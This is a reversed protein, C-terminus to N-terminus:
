KATPVKGPFENWRRDFDAQSKNWNPLFFGFFFILALVVAVIVMVIQLNVWKKAAAGLASDSGSRPTARGTSPSAALLAAKAQAFESETLAGSDHLDKLKRIEDSLDM